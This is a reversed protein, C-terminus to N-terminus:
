FVLCCRCLVARGGCICTKYKGRFGHCYSIQRRQPMMSFQKVICMHQVGAAASDEPYIPVPPPNWLRSDFLMGESFKNEDQWVVESRALLAANPLIFDYPKGRTSSTNNNGQQDTPQDVDSFENLLVQLAPESRTQANLDGCLAVFENKPFFQAIYNTLSRAEEVRRVENDAGSSAKIHVSVVHVMNTNPLMISAWAFHRNFNPDPDLWVGSAVIPWRSIIGNPMPCTRHPEEVFYTYNSGLWQDIFARHGGSNTVNFEQIAIIDPKLGQFIRGTSEAYSTYCPGMQSSLNASMITFSNSSTTRREDMCVEATEITASATGTLIVEDIDIREDAEDNNFVIHLSLVRGTVPIEFSLSQWGQQLPKGDGINDWNTDIALTSNTTGSACLAGVRIWGAGDMNAYMRLGDVGSEFAAPTARVSLKMMLQDYGQVDIDNVNVYWATDAEQRFVSSSGIYGTGQAAPGKDPEAHADIWSFWSFAGSRHTGVMDFAAGGATKEFDQRLLVAANM